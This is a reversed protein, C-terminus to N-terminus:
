DDFFDDVANGITYHIDTKANWNGLKFTDAIKELRDPSTANGHYIVSTQKAPSWLVRGRPVSFYEAWEDLGFQMKAQPWFDNHAFDSDCYGAQVNNEDPLHHFPVIQSGDDWWIGILPSTMETARESINTQLSQSRNYALIISRFKDRYFERQSPPGFKSDTVAKPDQRM